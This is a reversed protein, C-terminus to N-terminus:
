YKSQYAIQAHSEGSHDGDSAEHAAAAAKYAAISGTIGIIFNRNLLRAMQGICGPFNIDFTANM